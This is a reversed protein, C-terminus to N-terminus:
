TPAPPPPEESPSAAPNEPSAGEPGMGAGPASEPPPKRKRMRAGVVVAVLIIVIAALAMAAPFSSVPAAASTAPPTGSPTPTAPPPTPPPPTAPAATAAPPPPAAPAPAPSPSARALKSYAHQIADALFAQNQLKPAAPDTAQLYADPQLVAGPIVALYGQAFPMGAVVAQSRHNRAVDFPYKSATLSYLSEPNAGGSRYVLVSYTTSSGLGPLDMVSRAAPDVAPNVIPVAGREIFLGEFYDQRLHSVVLAARGAGINGLLTAAPIEGDRTVVVVDPDLSLIAGSSVFQNHVEMEQGTLFGAVTPDLNGMVRIAADGPAALAMVALLLLAPLRFM